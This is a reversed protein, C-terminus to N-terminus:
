SVCQIVEIIRNRMRASHKSDRCLHCVEHSEYKVVLKLSSCFKVNPERTEQENPKNKPSRIRQSFMEAMQTVTLEYFFNYLAYYRYMPLAKFKAHPTPKSM